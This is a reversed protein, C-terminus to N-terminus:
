AHDQGKSSLKGVAREVESAIREVQENISRLEAVLDATLARSIPPPEGHPSRLLAAALAAGSIPQEFQCGFFEGSNWVISAQVKGAEPLDLEFSEGIALSTSTEILVGTLSLDHVTVSASGRSASGGAVNLRLAKRRSGRRDGGTKGLEEFRALMAM